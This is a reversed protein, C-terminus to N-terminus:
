EVLICICDSGRKVIWVGQPVSVCQEEGSLCLTTLLQGNIDYLEVTEGANAGYLTLEGRGGIARFNDLHTESISTMPLAQINPAFLRWHPAEAYAEESGAPVYLVCSGGVAATSVNEFVYTGMADGTLPEPIYCYIQRLKSCAYFGDNGIHEVSSPITMASLKICGYFARDTIDHVSSPIIFEGSKGSPCLILTSADKSYLVGDISSYSPNEEDVNIAELSACSTFALAGIKTVGKPISITKIDYCGLFAKRGISELTSPLTVSTIKDCMYFAQNAVGKVTYEIDDHTVREPIVLAGEPKNTYGGRPKESIVYVESQEQSTIKYFLGDASFDYIQGAAQLGSTAVLLLSILTLFLTAKKMFLNKLPNYKNCIYVIITLHREYQLIIYAATRKM